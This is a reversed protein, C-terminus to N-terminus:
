STEGDTSDSGILRSACEEELYLQVICTANAFVDGRGARNSTPESQKYNKVGFM